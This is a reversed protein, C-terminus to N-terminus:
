SCLPTVLMKSEIALSISSEIRASIIRAVFLFFDLSHIQSKINNAGKAISISLAVSIEFVSRFDLSSFAGVNSARMGEIM